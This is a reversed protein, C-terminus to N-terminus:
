DPASPLQRPGSLSIEGSHSPTSCAACLKMTPNRRRSAITQRSTNSPRELPLLHLAKSHGSNCNSVNAALGPGGCRASCIQPHILGPFLVTLFLRGLLSCDYIMFFRGYLFLVLTYQLMLASSPRHRLKRPTGGLRLIGTKAEVRSQKRVDGRGRGECGLM